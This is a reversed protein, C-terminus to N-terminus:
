RKSSVEKRILPKSQRTSPVACRRFVIAEQIIQALTELDVEPESAKPVMTITRGKIYEQRQTNPNYAVYRVTIQLRVENKM